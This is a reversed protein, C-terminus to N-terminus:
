GGGRVLGVTRPARVPRYHGRGLTRPLAQEAMRRHLSPLPGLLERLAEPKQPRRLTAGEAPLTDVDSVDAYLEHRKRLTDRVFAQLRYVLPM